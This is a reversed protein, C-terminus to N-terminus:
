HLGENKQVQLQWGHLIWVHQCLQLCNVVVGLQERLCASMGQEQLRGQLGGVWCGM